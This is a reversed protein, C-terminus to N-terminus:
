IGASKSHVRHDMCIKWIILYRTWVMQLPFKQWFCKNKTYTIIVNITTKADILAIIITKNLKYVFRGYFIYIWISMFMTHMFIVVIFGILYFFNLLFLFHSPFSLSLSFLVCVCACVFCVTKRWQCLFLCNVIVINVSSSKTLCVIYHSHSKYKELLEM